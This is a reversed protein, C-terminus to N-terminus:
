NCERINKKERTWNSFRYIKLNKTLENVDGANCLFGNEGHIIIGDIGENKSAVVICGQLMAELYVLGFTENKSVMIFCESMQM